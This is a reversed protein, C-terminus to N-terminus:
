VVETVTESARVPGVVLESGVAEGLVLRSFQAGAWRQTFPRSWHRCLWSSM